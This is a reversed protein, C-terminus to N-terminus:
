SELTKAAYEASDLNMFQMPYYPLGNHVSEQVIACGKPVFTDLFQSIAM